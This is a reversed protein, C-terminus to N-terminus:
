QSDELSYKYNYDGITRLGFRFLLSTETQDGSYQTETRNYAVSFSYCSDDYALGFGHTYLQKNEIDYSFSGFGRWTDTLKVSASGSVEHRNNLYGYNPQAEIYNYSTSLAAFPTAYRLTAEGRRFTLNKEDFRGGLGVSLGSGSSLNAGVVYDSRTTELGSEMGANVTDRNSVAYSNQGALHFSQGAVVDLTAGSRFTASYRFGINARSGGEVRDYGSFKDRRFLNSADFVFSQADENPFEGIHTENPRVMVQAIPEFVHTAYSDSAVLPYRIELMGTAMGRFVSDNSTLPNVAPSPIGTHMWAADARGSLSATLVAGNVIESRKWESEMTLRQSNGEIGHFRDDTNVSIGDNNVVQPDGRHINRFNIDLSVEGGGVPYDSVRNYDFVPYANGQQDELKQNGAIFPDQDIRDDQVVFNQARLDFYNKGSLGTLYVENTIERGNYGELNYTKAFNGDSQWLGNWGFQWRDNLDFRGASMVAVRGTENSDIAIADFDKPTQQDIGAIKLNYEGLETRHRWEAEGLFGQNSYYTGSLTLDYNPAMAWFFSQKVGFGLNQSYSPSPVLFGTMRKISPDAHSFRPLWAIPKGYLEFSAGEYEVRRTSNNIIVRNARIQWLPPREPHDKCPECATYVGQNFVAIEGDRREASEAAFRTNDATEVRLSSVFGDRFDDTIDIEEAFIRSGKPELIEVNGSAIVRGSRRSYTVRQAVLTYGDYAIRVNGVAAVTDEDNNYVLNDAELLMQANPNAVAGGFIGEGTQSTQALASPALLAIGVALAAARCVGIAPRSADSKGYAWVPIFRNM